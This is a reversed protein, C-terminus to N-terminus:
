RSPGAENLIIGDRQALAEARSVWIPAKLRTFRGHADALHIAQAARDGRTRATEALAMHITGGVFIAGSAEALTLGSELERRATEGDGRAQALRATMTHGLIRAPAFTINQVIATGRALVAEAEDMEGRMLHAQSRLMVFWGELQRWKLRGCTEAAQSLLPLATDGDGRELYGIGLFGQALGRSTEDSALALAREGAEIGTAWDGLTVYVYSRTWAAQSALRPDGLKEAIASTWTASDLADDFRGLLLYSLARSWHAMALWWQDGARELLGIAHRGHEVGRQFDGSWFSERGIIYHAKGATGVDGAAEAEALAREAHALAGGGDGLVGLASALRVHYQATLSPDGVGAVMDAHARLEELGETIQGLLFNTQSRELLLEILIRERDAPLRAAHTEAERLAARAEANAYAAMARAAVRRLAEVAKDARPTRTWHYALQDGAREVRPADQAELTLAAAEHLAERTGTLLQEYAVEQILAHNFAYVSDAGAAREHVFDLRALDALHGDVAGPGSWVAELLRQSFERGLVAATQLLRKHADGLRDIRAGLVARLSDPVTLSGAGDGSEMVARAVEGLFLPNGDAKELIAQVLSPPLRTRDAVDAILARSEAEGLPALAIETTCEDGAWPQQWDPRHTVVLLIPTDEIREILSTLYSQSAPDIWHLDELLVLLPRRRSQALLMRRLTEITRERIVEPVLDDLVPATKLGLLHLLFPARETADLGLEDVTARVKAAVTEPTDADDALCQARVLEVIPVYAVTAGWAHCRAELVTVDTSGLTRRFEYLLRSKGSGAQGVVSVVGGEGRQAAALLDGLRRLEADRGVFRGFAREAVREQATRRPALGLLKYATVPENKGKVSLSGAPLLRVEGRVLRATSESIMIEGGAAAQELRAAVNTTDGVATYDMRLNDGISGVVVLGTNLGMRVTLDAGGLGAYSGRDRLKRRINVAATVARRADDEHTLPAGFLAMFGDGLFQNITGENRHVEALALEFFGNLLAHMREPGVREALPTSNAIDCFLVTVQKREGELAARSTLIREALHKPTYSVPSAFAPQDRLDRGCELCFKATDPLETSCNPCRM